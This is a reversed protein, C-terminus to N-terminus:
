GEAHLSMVYVEGDDEFLAVRDVGDDLLDRWVQGIWSEADAQSTFSGPEVAPTVEGGDAAEFRWTWAM